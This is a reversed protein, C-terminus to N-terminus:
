VSITDNSHRVMNRIAVDNYCKPDRATLCYKADIGLQQMATLYRMTHGLQDSDLWLTIQKKRLRMMLAKPFYTTLLAIGNWNCAQRMRIASLVDEVVVYHDSPAPAHFFIHAYENSKRTIYKAIEKQKREEKSSCEVERGIWGILKKALCADVEAYEYIPVIVRNYSPSWGCNYEELSQPLIMADYFWRYAAWPVRKDHHQKIPIFDDPLTLVDMREYAKEKRMNNLMTAVETPTKRGDGVFGKFECRFCYFWWGDAKRLVALAADKGDSCAAHHIRKTEGLKWDHTNIVNILEYPLKTFDVM